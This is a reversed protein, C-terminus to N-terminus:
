RKGLRSIVAPLDRFNKITAAAGDFSGFGYAAHIIPIGADRCALADGKTDGVYVPNALQNRKIVLRITESKPLGTDGFCAYDTFYSAIGTGNICTEIYGCQCNSVIFLPYSKHLEALTDAVHPYLSAPERTLLENEYSHCLGSLQNREEESLEPFLIASIEDMPKGFLQKLQLATVRTDLSTHTKIIHNWAKAVPVRSDWLTGDIDFIISDIPKLDKQQELEGALENMEWNFDDFDGYEGYDAM